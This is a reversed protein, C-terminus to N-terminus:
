TKSYDVAFLISISFTMRFTVDNIIKIFDHSFCKILEFGKKKM